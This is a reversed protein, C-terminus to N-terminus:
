RYLAKIGGWTADEVPTNCVAPQPAIRTGTSEERTCSDEVFDCAGEGVYTITLTSTAEYSDGTRTGLMSAVFTATCGEFIEMTWSCEVDIETDSISGTCQYTIESDGGLYVPDGACITDTFSESFIEEDTDCDFGVLEETWIGSWAAPVTFEDDLSSLVGALSLQPARAQTVSPLLILLIGVLLPLRIRM